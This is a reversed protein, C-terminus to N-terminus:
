AVTINVLQFIMFMIYETSMCKIITTSTCKCILIFEFKFNQHTFKVHRVCLACIRRKFLIINEMDM